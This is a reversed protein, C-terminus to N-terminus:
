WRKFETQTLHIKHVVVNQLENTGETWYFIRDGVDYSRMVFVFIISEVLASASPGIMFAAGVLFSAFTISLTEVDRGWISLIVFVLIFLIAGGVIQALKRAIHQSDNLTLALSKHDRFVRVVGQVMEDRTIAGNNDGDFLAFARFRMREDMEPCFFNFSLTKGGEEAQAEAEDGDDIAQDVLSRDKVSPSAPGADGEEAPGEQADWAGDGPREPGAPLAEFTAQPSTSVTSTPTSPYGMSRQAAQLMAAPAATAAEFMAAPTTLAAASPAVPSPPPLGATSPSTGGSKTGAKVAETSPPRGFVEKAVASFISARHVRSRSMSARTRSSSMGVAKEDTYREHGIQLMRDYLFEGLVKAERSSDLTDCGCLEVFFDHGLKNRPIFSIAKSVAYLSLHGWRTNQSCVQLAFHEDEPKFFGKTTYDTLILMVYQAFINSRVRLLYPKWLYRTAVLLVLFNRLLWGVRFALFSAISRKVYVYVEIQRATENLEDQAIERWALLLLISYVLLALELHLATIFYLMNGQYLLKNGIDSQTAVYALSRMMFRVIPLSVLSVSLMFSWRLVSMGLFDPTDEGVESVVICPVLVLLSAVIMKALSRLEADMQVSEIEGIM